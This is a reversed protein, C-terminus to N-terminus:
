EKKQRKTKKEYWFHSTSVIEDPKPLFKKFNNKLL